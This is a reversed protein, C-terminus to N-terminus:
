WSGPRKEYGEANGEPSGELITQELDLALKEAEPTIYSTKEM